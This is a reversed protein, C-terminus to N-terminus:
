WSVGSQLGTASCNEPDGVRSSERWASEWCTEQKTLM